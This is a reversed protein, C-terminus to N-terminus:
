YQKFIYVGRTKTKQVWVGQTPPSLQLNAFVDYGVTFKGREQKILIRINNPERTVRIPKLERISRPWIQKSIEGSPFQEMLRVCDQHLKQGDKLDALEDGKPECGLLIGVCGILLWLHWLTRM